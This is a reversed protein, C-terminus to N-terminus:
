KECQTSQQEYLMFCEKYTFVYIVIFPESASALEMGHNAYIMESLQRIYKTIDRLKESRMGTREKGGKSSYIRALRTLM